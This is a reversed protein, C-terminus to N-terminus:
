TSYIDVKIIRMVGLQLVEVPISSASSFIISNGKMIMHIVNHVKNKPLLGFCILIASTDDEGELKM